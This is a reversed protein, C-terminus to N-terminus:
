DRGNVPAPQPQPDPAKKLELQDFAAFAPMVEKARQTVIGGGQLILSASGDIVRHAWLFAVQKTKKEYRMCVLRGSGQVRKIFLDSASALREVKRLETSIQESRLVQGSLPDIVFRRGNMVSWGNASKQASISSVMEVPNGSQDVELHAYRREIEDFFVFRSDSVYYEGRSLLSAGTLFLTFLLSKMNREVVNTLWASSAVRFEFRDGDLRQATVAPEGGATEDLAPYIPPNRGHQQDGDGCGRRLSKASLRRLCARAM